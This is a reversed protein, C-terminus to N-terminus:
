KTYHETIAPVLTCCQNETVKKCLCIILYSIVNQREILSEEGHPADSGVQHCYVFFNPNLRATVEYM